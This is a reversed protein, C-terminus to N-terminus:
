GIVDGGNYKKQISNAFNIDKLGAVIKNKLKDLM